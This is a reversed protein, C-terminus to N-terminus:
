RKGTSRVRRVVELEIRGRVLGNEVPDLVPDVEDIAVSRMRRQFLPASAM